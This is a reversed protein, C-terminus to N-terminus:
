GEELEFFFSRRQSITRKNANNRTTTSLMVAMADSRGLAVTDSSSSTQCVLFLLHVAAPTCFINTRKMKTISYPIGWAQSPHLVAAPSQQTVKAHLECPQTSVTNMIPHNKRGATHHTISHKKAGM